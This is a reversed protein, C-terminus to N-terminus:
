SGKTSSGWKAKTPNILRFKPNTRFDEKHDKITVFCQQENMKDIMGDLKYFEALKQAEVNINSPMNEPSKRYTKTINENLIRGYEEKTVEYYNQTKDAPVFLKSSENIRFEGSSM